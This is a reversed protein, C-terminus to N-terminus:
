DVVLIISAKEEHLYPETIGACGSDLNCSTFASGASPESYYALRLDHVHQYSSM